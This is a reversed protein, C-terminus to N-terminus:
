FPPGEFRHDSVDLVAEYGISRYIHNSTPNALDTFLFCSRKGEDFQRQTVAATLASAYGRGRLEPPTYVPAVRIGHPTEGSVGVMAVPRDDVVWFYMTRGMGSIWRDAFQLLAGADARQGLAEENFAALWRALLARDAAEAIRLEGAVPRPPIVREVRFIRESMKLAHARGTVATWLEAFRRSAASEGIVGPVGPVSRAIDTVLPLLADDDIPSSLLVLFGVILAAGVVADGSRAVAFYPSGVPISATGARLQSCLGLMVCNEAERAGLFDHASKEFADLGASLELRIDDAM